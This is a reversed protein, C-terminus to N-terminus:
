EVAMMERYLEETREGNFYRAALPRFTLELALATNTGPVELMQQYTQRVQKFHEYATNWDLAAQGGCVANPAEEPLIDNEPDFGMMFFRYVDGRAPDLSEILKMVLKEMLDRPSGTNQPHRFALQLQGILSTALLRDLQLVIMVAENAHGWKQVNEFIRDKEEDTM